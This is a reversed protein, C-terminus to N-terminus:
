EILKKLDSLLSMVSPMIGSYPSITGSEGYSRALFELADVQEKSPKWQNQFKLSRLREAAKNFPLKYGSYCTLPNSEDYMDELAIIAQKIADEDEESWTPNQEGQKELWAIWSQIQPCKNGKRIYPEAQNECHELLEKRIREDESEKLEPFLEELAKKFNLQCDIHWGKVREIAEDYRKAKEEISLERM